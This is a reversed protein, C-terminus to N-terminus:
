RQGGGAPIGPCHMANPVRTLSRLHECVRFARGVAGPDTRWIPALSQPLLALEVKRNRSGDRVEIWGGPGDVVRDGLAAPFSFFDELEILARLGDFQKVSLTIKYEIRRPPLPSDGYPVVLVAATRDAHVEISWGCEGWCGTVSAKVEFADVRATSLLLALALSAVAGAPTRM